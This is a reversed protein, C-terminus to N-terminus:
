HGARLVDMAAHCANALQERMLEPGSADGNVIADRIKLSQQHSAEMRGPQSM